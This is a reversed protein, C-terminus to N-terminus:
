RVGVGLRLFGEQQPQTWFRTQRNQFKVILWRSSLIFMLIADTIAARSSALPQAWFPGTFGGASGSSLAGIAPAVELPAGDVANAYLLAACTILSEILTVQIGADSCGCYFVRRVPLLSPNKHLCSAVFSAGICTRLLLFHVAQIKRLLNARLPEEETLIVRDHDNRSV